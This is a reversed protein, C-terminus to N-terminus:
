RFQHSLLVVVISSLSVVVVVIFFHPFTFYVNNCEGIFILIQRAGDKGSLFFLPVCVFVCFVVVCFSSILRGSERRRRRGRETVRSIMGDPRWGGVDFEAAMSPAELRWLILRVDGVSSGAAM